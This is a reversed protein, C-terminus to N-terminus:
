RRPQAGAAVAPSSSPGALPANIALTPRDRGVPTPARGLLAPLLNERPLNDRRLLELHGYSFPSVHLLDCLHSVIRALLAPVPVSVANDREHVARLADLYQIMTRTATGGLEVERWDSRGRAESLLAIAEGLDRVDLAAIRGRADAPYFHIPWRATRRIWAAGFGGEGDLLSPRVISYDAHTMMVAREGALKSLLFYSRAGDHLGLASIHVLRLGSAACARALAAPARHHVRDYTEGWRERLIGVCNIVGDLGRLLFTWADEATLRELHTERFEYDTV